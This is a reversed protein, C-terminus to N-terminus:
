NNSTIESKLKIKWTLYNAFRQCSNFTLYALVFSLTIVILGCSILGTKDLIRLNIKGNIISLIQHHYLFALFSYKSLFNIVSNFHIKKFAFEYVVVMLVLISTFLPINRYENIVMDRHDNITYGAVIILAVATILKIVTIRKESIQEFLFMGFIFEPLRVIPNWIDRKNWFPIHDYLYSNYRVSLISLILALLFTWYKNKIYLLRIVPFFIYMIIIFGLFWEGILYYTSVRGSLFGDLGLLTWIIRTFDGQFVMRGGILFLFLVTIIYAVYYTPYISIFRKKYFNLVNFNNKISNYIGGGSIIIFFSVGLGGFLPFIYRSIHVDVKQDYLIVATYHFIIIFLVSLARVYDLSAIKKKNM